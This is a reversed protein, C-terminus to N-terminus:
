SRPAAPILALMAGALLHVAEIPKAWVEGEWQSRTEPRSTISIITPAAHVGVSAREGRL